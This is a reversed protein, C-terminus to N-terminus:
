FIMEHRMRLANIADEIDTQNGSKIALILNRAEDSGVASHGMVEHDRVQGPTLRKEPNSSLMGNLLNDLDDQGTGERLGGPGVANTGSNVWKDIMKIDDGRETGDTLLGGVLLEFGASGLGFTDFSAGVKLDSNKLRPAHQEMKEKIADLNQNFNATVKNRNELSLSGVARSLSNYVAMVLGQMTNKETTVTDNKRNAAKEKMKLFEPAGYNPNEALVHYGPAIRSTEIGEGLDILKTTGDESLMMNPAKVDGHTLGRDNINALGTAADKLVTLAIIRREFDSIVGDNKLQGVQKALTSVDGNPMLDGILAVSGDKLEVHSTFGVANPNQEMMRSTNFLELAAKEKQGAALSETAPLKVAVTIDGEVSKYRVVTGFSGKGLAEEPQFERGNITLNPAIVKVTKGEMVFALERSGEAQKNENPVLDPVTDIVRMNAEILKTVRTTLSDLNSLLQLTSGSRSTIKGEAMVGVLLKASNWVDSVDNGLNWQEKEGFRNNTINKSDLQGLKNRVDEGMTGIFKALTETALDRKKQFKTGREEGEGTSRLRDYINRFFGEPSSSRTYLITNNDKDKKALLDTGAGQEKLFDTIQSLTTEKTITLPM